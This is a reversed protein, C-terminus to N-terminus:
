IVTKNSYNIANCAPANVACWTNLSEDIPLDAKGVRLEVTPRAAPSQSIITAAIIASLALALKKM